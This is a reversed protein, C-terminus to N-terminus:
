GFFYNMVSRDTIDSGDVKLGMGLGMGVGTSSAFISALLLVTSSHNNEKSGLHMQTLSCMHHPCSLSCASHGCSGCHQPTRRPGPTSTSQPDSGKTQHPHITQILALLEAGYCGVEDWHREHALDQVSSIRNHHICDVICDLIVTSM